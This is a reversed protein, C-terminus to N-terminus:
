LHLTNLTDKWITKEGSEFVFKSGIRHINNGMIHVTTETFYEPTSTESHCTKGTENPFCYGSGIPEDKDNLIDFFTDDIKKAKTSLNFSTNDSLTITDAIKLIDGDLEIKSQATYTGSTGKSSKWVGTGSYQTVTVANAAFSLGLSVVALALGKLLKM